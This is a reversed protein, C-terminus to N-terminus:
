FPEDDVGLCRAGMANLDECAKLLANFKEEMKNECKTVSVVLAISSTAYSTVDILKAAIQAQPVPAFSCVFSTGKMFVSALGLAKVISDRSECTMTRAIPDGATRDQYDKFPGIASFCVDAIGTLDREFYSVDFVMKPQEISHVAVIRAPKADKLSETLQKPHLVSGEDPIEIPVGKREVAAAPTAFPLLGIIGAALIGRRLLM